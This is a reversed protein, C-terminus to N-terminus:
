QLCPMLARASPSRQLEDLPFRGCLPGIILRSTKSKTECHHCIRCQIGDHVQGTNAPKRGAVFCLHPGPPQYFVEGGPVRGGGNKMQDVPCSVLPLPHSSGSIKAETTEGGETSNDAVKRAV